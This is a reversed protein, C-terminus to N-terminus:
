LIEKAGRWHNVPGHGRGLDVATRIAATIFKKAKGVAVPLPEGRALLTAIAASFTCGTGHTNRGALRECSWRHVGQPTLLLDVAEGRLHGGKILVNRAGMALLKEGAREMEKEGEIPIGTLAAAEPVNPTLLYTQPLLRDILTAVADQRLLPAGGKAIMVPDVVAPLGYREVLGAACAVIEASYLMGTKVVDAGIDDIVATVQESVFDAPCPHIGSVGLTNQATLATLASMGYGGLLAITKLDAQIGAGGGSDSGAITLVRGRPEPHRRNAILALERAALRPDDADRLASIVAVADAGLDFLRPARDRDIGGIAVLPRDVARRIEGLREPGVLEADQKSGTPYMSGVAIYDAGAAAAARAQEVTRTSVGILHGTGLIKRAEAPPTDDQGLHVGDADVALALHPHDNILFIAGYERCLDRLRRAIPAQEEVSRHKDRYQLIRVGGALVARCTDLYRGAPDATTIYYIGELM